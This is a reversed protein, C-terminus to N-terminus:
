QQRFERKWMRELETAMAPNPAGILTTRGREYLKGYVVGKAPAYLVLLNYEGCDHPKCPTAVQFEDGAVTVRRVLASNTMTALWKEKAKPGLSTVYASKFKPDRLLDDTTVMPDAGQAARALLAAGTLATALATM